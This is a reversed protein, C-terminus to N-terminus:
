VKYVGAKGSLAQKVALMVGKLAAKAVRQTRFAYPEPFSCAPRFGFSQRMCHSVM